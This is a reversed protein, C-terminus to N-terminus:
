TGLAYMITYTNTDAATKGYVELVYWGEPNGSAGATSVTAAENDTESTASAVELWDNATSDWRWVRLDIDQGQTGDYSFLVDIVATEDSLLYLQYFDRDGASCIEITTFGNNAGDRAPCRAFYEAPDTSVADDGCPLTIALEHDDNPELDEDICILGCSFPREIIAVDCTQALWCICQSDQCASPPDQWPSCNIVAGSEPCRYPEDCVDRDSCGTMTGGLLTLLAILATIRM